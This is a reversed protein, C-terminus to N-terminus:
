TVSQREVRVYIGARTPDLYHSRLVTDIRHRDMVMGESLLLLGTGSRVDRAIVMGPRLEKPTLEMEISGESPLITAMNDEVAACLTRFLGPDFQKRLGTKISQIAKEAADVRMGKAFLRDFGDAIAIIRSGMPVAEGSLGDPFGTGDYREHHHRIMAGADRLDEISDIASQGRVPHKRYEAMEDGTLIAVNKSLIIDSVGIKGIDHLQAAIILTEIEGEDLGAKRAVAESLMAVNNSHNRASSDRLENLNAFASIFQKFNNTIKGNLETLERNKRSLDITQEQVCIELESSWRQLEENQKTTLATLRRNEKVLRFTEVGQRITLLLDSDNWPKTIYRYAGGKNIADIAATIDAYGTLVIRVSDPSIDKARELFEAGSMGPMRQDSVIVAVSTKALVELGEPGSPATIVDFDEELALRRLSRLVNEEDDVFLVTFVKGADSQIV